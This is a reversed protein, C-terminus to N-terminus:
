TNGLSQSGEEQKLDHSALMRQTVSGCSQSCWIIKKFLGSLTGADEEALQLCAVAEMKGMGLM